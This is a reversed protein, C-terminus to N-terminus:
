AGFCWGKDTRVEGCREKGDDKGEGQGLQSPNTEQEISVASYPYQVRIQEQKKSQTKDKNM